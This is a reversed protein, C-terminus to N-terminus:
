GKAARRTLTALQISEQIFQGAVGVLEKGGGGHGSLHGERCPKNQM